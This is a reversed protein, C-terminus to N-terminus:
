YLDAGFNQTPDLEASLRGTPRAAPGAQRPLFSGSGPQAQVVGDAVVLQGRCFVTVPWGTVEMGAYPTYGTADAVMENSITVRRAADWIALDADKGVAISGKRGDLGYLRAPETATVRVFAQLDARGRSVMADFLLPLRWHLGPLGNPIQKFTAGPGAHRKGAEDDAFPAHDSSVTQLDGLALARWLAEQDAEARPPPSCCFRAGELGPKDLDDATLFLYQPCTEGYVKLGRGRAERIVAAGEATSVHYLIVPQDILEALAILRIFAEAESVRAHSVAHFKPAVYGRDLLRRVMWAIIGHNEAHVAVLAGHTRAALLIDLLAEDSLRMPDYTMFVKISAHGERILAPLQETLCVQTPDTVILHLAYDILAGSAALAHYDRAVEALDMGRHQCAFPIVTTTGGLAASRTASEWTDANMMGAASLQEIHCHTDVGGPLVLHDTADIEKEGAGLGQGLAAITEGRIGVDCDMVDAATAVRGGRIVLDFEAM